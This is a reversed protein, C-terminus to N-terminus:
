ERGLEAVVERAAARAAEVRELPFSAAGVVPHGGGGYRQCIASIDHTRPRQAWPNSGVSLKARHPSKSVVVSYRAEPFLYYLIFKNYTELDTDTLDAHVVGQDLAARAQITEISRRHKELLPALPHAIYPAAVIEALSKDEMDRILEQVLRPDAVAEVVMMLKLAPERVEVATRADPFQAGDVVDAWYILEAQPKPDFGFREQAVEAIFKTCSKASPDYFKKGSTDARFHAEDAPTLFASKHHDFWWTLRPDALYRFDVIVNQDGDLEADPFKGGVQHTLGHFVFEAPAIKERFFRAFM